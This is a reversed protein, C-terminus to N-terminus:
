LGAKQLNRKREPALTPRCWEKPKEKLKEVYEEIVTWTGDSNRSIIETRHYYPYDVEAVPPAAVCGVLVFALLVLLVKKM